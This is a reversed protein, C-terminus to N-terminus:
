KTCKKRRRRTFQTAFTLACGGGMLFLGALRYPKTGTGGTSPLNYGEDGTNEKTNTITMVGDGVKQANICYLTEDDADDFSYSATYNSVDAEEVWYYYPNGESDQTPLNELTCQWDNIAKLTVEYTGDDNFTPTSTDDSAAATTGEAGDDSLLSLTEASLSLAASLSQRHPLSQTSSITMTPAEQFANNESIVIKVTGAPIKNAESTNGSVVDFSVSSGVGNNGDNWSWQWSGL